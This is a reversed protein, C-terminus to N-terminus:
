LEMDRLASSLMIAKYQSAHEIAISTVTIPQILSIAIQGQSDAMPWCEGVHISPMIAIEPPHIHIDGKLARHLTYLPPFYTPSIYQHIISAEGTYLAFNPSETISSTHGNLRIHRRDAVGSASYQSPHDVVMGAYLATIACLAIVGIIYIYWDSIVPIHNSVPSQEEQETDTYQPSTDLTATTGIDSDSDSDYALCHEEAILCGYAFSPVGKYLNWPM